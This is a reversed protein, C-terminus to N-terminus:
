TYGQKALLLGFNRFGMTGLLGVGPSPTGPGDYRFVLVPRRQETHNPEGRHLM